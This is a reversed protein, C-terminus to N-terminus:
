VRGMYILFDVGDLYITKDTPRHLGNRIKSAFKEFIELGVYNRTHIISSRPKFNCKPVLIPQLIGPLKLPAGFMKRVWMYHSLAWRISVEWTINM